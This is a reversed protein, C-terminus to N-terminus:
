KVNITLCESERSRKRLETRGEQRIKDERSPKQAPTNPAAILVGPSVMRVTTCFLTSPLRGPLIWGTYGTYHLRM